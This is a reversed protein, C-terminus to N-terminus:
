GTLKAQLYVHIGLQFLNIPTVHNSVVRRETEIQKSVKGL